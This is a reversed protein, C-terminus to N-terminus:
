ITYFFLSLKPVALTACFPLTAPLHSSHSMHLTPLSTDGQLNRPRM